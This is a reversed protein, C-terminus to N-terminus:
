LRFFVGEAKAILAEKEDLVNAELYIFKGKQKIIKARAFIDSKAPSKFNTQFRKTAFPSDNFVTSIAVAMATDALSMIAGGHIIGNPNKVLDSFPLRIYSKGGRAEIIKLKLIREFECKVKKM